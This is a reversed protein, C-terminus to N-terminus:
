RPISGITTVLIASNSLQSLRTVVKLLQVPSDFVTALLLIQQDVFSM